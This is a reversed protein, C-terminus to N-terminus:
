GKGIIPSLPRLSFNNNSPDVFLPDVGLLNSKSEIVASHDITNPGHVIVPLVGNLCNNEIIPM